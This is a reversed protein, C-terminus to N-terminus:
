ALQDAEGLNESLNLLGTYVLLDEIPKTLFDEKFPKYAWNSPGMRQFIKNGADDCLDRIILMKWAVKTRLRSAIAERVM